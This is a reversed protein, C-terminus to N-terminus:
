RLRRQWDWPVSGAPGEVDGELGRAEVAVAARVPVHQHGDGVAVPRRHLRVGLRLDRGTQEGLPSELGCRATPETAAARVPSPGEAARSPRPSDVQEDSEVAGLQPSRGQEHPAESCGRASPATLDSCSQARSALAKALSSRTQSSTMNFRALHLKGDVTKIGPMNISVALDGELTRSSRKIHSIRFETGISEAFLRYGLGQREFVTLESM